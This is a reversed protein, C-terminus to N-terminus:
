KNLQIGSLVGGGTLPNQNPLKFVPADLNLKVEDFKNLITSNKFSFPASYTMSRERKLFNFDKRNVKSCVDEKFNDFKPITDFLKNIRFKDYFIEM